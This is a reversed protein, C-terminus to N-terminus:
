GAPTFARRTIRWGGDSRYAYTDDYRGITERPPGEVPVLIERIWWTGTATTGDVRVTGSVVGQLAVTFRARIKAWSRVIDARGTKDLGPGTWSADDAWCSRFTDADARAVADCYRAVLDDIALQATPEHSTM